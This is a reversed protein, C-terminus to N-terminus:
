SDPSSTTKTPYVSTRFTTALRNIHTLYHFLPRVCKPSNLLSQLNLACLNLKDLLTYRARMHTPCVWILHHVTEDALDCEQCPPMLSRKIQHLHKN